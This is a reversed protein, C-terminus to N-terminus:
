NNGTRKITLHECVDVLIVLFVFLNLLTSDTQFRSGAMIVPVLLSTVPCVRTRRNAPTTADDTSPSVLPEPSTLNEEEDDGRGCM